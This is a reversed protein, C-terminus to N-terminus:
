FGEVLVRSLMEVLTKAGGVHEGHCDGYADWLGTVENYWFGIDIISDVMFGHMHAVEYCLADCSSPMITLTFGYDSRESVFDLWAYCSNTGVSEVEFGGFDLRSESIATRLGNAVKRMRDRPVIGIYSADNM